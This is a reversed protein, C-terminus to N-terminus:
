MAAIPAVPLICANLFVIYLEENKNFKYLGQKEM